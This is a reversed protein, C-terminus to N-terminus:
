ARGPSRRPRRRRDAIRGAGRHLGPEAVVVRQVDEANVAHRSRQPRDQGAHEGGPGGPGHPSPLSSRGQAQFAAREQLGLDDGHQDAPAQGITPVNTMRLTSSAM